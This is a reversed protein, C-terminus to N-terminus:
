KRDPAIGIFRGARAAERLARLEVRASERIETRDLEVANEDIWTEVLSELWPQRTDFQEVAYDLWSNYGDPPPL